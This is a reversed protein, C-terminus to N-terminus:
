RQTSGKELVLIKMKQFITFMASENEFVQRKAFVREEVSSSADIYVHMFAYLISMCNLLNDLDDIDIDIFMKKFLGIM